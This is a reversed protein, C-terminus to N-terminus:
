FIYFNFLLFLFGQSSSSKRFTSHYHPKQTTEHFTSDTETSERRRGASKPPNNNEQTEHRHIPDAPATQLLIEYSSQVATFICSTDCDPNKDIM